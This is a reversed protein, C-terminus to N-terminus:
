WNSPSVAKRMGTCSTTRPKWVKQHRGMPAAYAFSRPRPTTTPHLAPNRLRANPLRTSDGRGMSAPPFSPATSVPNSASYKLRIPDIMTM